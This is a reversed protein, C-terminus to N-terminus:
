APLTGTFNIKVINDPRSVRPAMSTLMRTTLKKGMLIDKETVDNAMTAVEGPSFAGVADFSLADNIPFIYATTTDAATAVVKDYRPNSFGGMDRLLGAATTDTEARVETWLGSALPHMLIGLAANDPVDANLLKAKAKGLDSVITTPDTSWDGGTVTQLGADNLLGTAPGPLGTGVAGGLYLYDNMEEAMVRGLQRAQETPIAGSRKWAYWARSGMTVDKSFIPLDISKKTISGGNSDEIAPIEMSVKVENPIDSLERWDYADFGLDDVPTHAFFDTATLSRQYSTVFAEQIKTTLNERDPLPYLQAM